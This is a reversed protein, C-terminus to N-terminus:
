EQPAEAPTGDTGITEQSPNESESLIESEPKQRGGFTGWWQSQRARDQARSAGRSQMKNRVTIPMLTLMALSLNRNTGSM